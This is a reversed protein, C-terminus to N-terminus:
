WWKLVEKVDDFCFIHLCFFDCDKAYIAFLAFKLEQM